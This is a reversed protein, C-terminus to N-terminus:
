LICPWQSSISNSSMRRARQRFLLSPTLLMFVLNSLDKTADARIWGERYAIFDIAILLVMPFLSSPLFFGPQECPAILFQGMKARLVRVVQGCWM